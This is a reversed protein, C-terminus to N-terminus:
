ATVLRRVARIDDPGTRCCGGILRAGKAQWRHAQEAYAAAQPSVGAWVKGEADYHEGSNPYALVPKSTHAKAQEVLSAVYEPATCNVGIAVIQPYAELAAVCDALREGQANHEGDKCAFSIWAVTDPQEALVDAIALAEDLCPITECALLDAGSAALVQLRERHFNALAARDLGYNGRYESGDALMAGYPGVSAAVLPRIRGVRNAPEAWFADRAEQALKVSLRMLDAAQARSMGRRTFAEFTAQYSATTAVDAGALFYDAHVARILEPQEILLKASWLPDNLNAGRRELETALAGDLVMLRDNALFIEIPNLM